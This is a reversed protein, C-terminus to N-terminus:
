CKSRSRMSPASLRSSSRLPGAGINSGVCFIARADRREGGRGRGARLVADVIRVASRGDSARLAIVVERGSEIAAGVNEPQRWELALQQQQCGAHLQFAPQTARNRLCLGRQHITSM